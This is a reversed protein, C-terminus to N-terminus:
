RIGNSWVASPIMDTLFNLISFHSAKIFTWKTTMNGASHVCHDLNISHYENPMISMFKCSQSVVPSWSSGVQFMTINWLPKRHIHQMFLNSVSPRSCIHHLLMQTHHDILDKEYRPYTVTIKSIYNLQNIKSISIKLMKNHGGSWSTEGQGDTRLITDARYRWCYEDSGNWIQM